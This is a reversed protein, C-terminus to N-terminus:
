IKAVKKVFGDIKDSAFDRGRELNFDGVWLIDLAGCLVGSAVSVLYDFKDAQSSLLGIQSDLDFIIRDLDYENSPTIKEYPILNIQLQEGDNM